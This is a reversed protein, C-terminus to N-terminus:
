VPACVVMRGQFFQIGQAAGWAIARPTDAHTLVLHPAEARITDRDITALAESWRLEMLDLGSSDPPFVPLLEATIGRLLTRYGRSRAFDRAFLFAAPDALMDAPLLNLTVQGRLKKPLATDFRLFEPALISAVNLNIAFPGAGLLEDPAALLALMRRDLSRTLRRFLWPAAQPAHDPALSAALEAISLFRKEWRLQFSCDPRRACIQRRRAFRAVDAQALGAELVALAPLDLPRAQSAAVVSTADALQQEALALLTGAEEPLALEQWLGPPATDDAENSAFLEAVADRSVSLAIEAAGRWIVVLDANPLEFLRARDAQVLPELAARALRLHTPRALDPSLRSLRVVCARRAIGSTVCERVLSALREAEDRTASRDTERTERRRRLVTIM